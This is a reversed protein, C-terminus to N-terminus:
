AGFTYIASNKLWGVMADNQFGFLARWAAAFHAVTGFTFARPRSSLTLRPRPSCSGSLRSSFSRLSPSCFSSGVVKWTLRSIRMDPLRLYNPAGCWCRPATLGLVLLIVLDCLGRQLQRQYLRHLVRASETVLHQEGPRPPRVLWSPNSSSSRARCLLPHAHLGGVKQHAAVQYARRGSLREGTWVPPRWSNTPINNLAGYMVVIWGGAGDLLGHHCLHIAPALAVAGFRNALIGDRSSSTGHASLQISCSCGCWCAPPAQWRGPMYFLFRFFCENSTGTLAADFGAGLHAHGRRGALDSTSVSTNSRPLFRFDHFANSFNAAGAFKGGVKTFALYIAYASPAICLAGVARLLPWSPTARSARVVLPAGRDDRSGSPRSPARRSLRLLPVTM